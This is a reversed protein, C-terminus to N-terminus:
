QREHKLLEALIWVAGAIAFNEATESWNGQDHARAVLIPAWVLVGFSVIMITLLRAALLAQLNSLLALAALAFFVTTAIAWFMQSPPIWKPVLDATARIYFAQELAFSVTCIGLLIRGIRTLTLPSWLSALSAYVLAAGTFLSFQEFFNGWNNYVQPASIIQPVCQITTVLYAAGLILSGAKEVTRFQILVGGTIQGVAVALVVYRLSHGNGPNRWILTILGSALSAAGFVHRGLKLSPMSETMQKRCRKRRRGMM